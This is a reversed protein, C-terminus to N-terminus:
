DIGAPAPGTVPASPETQPPPRGLNAWIVLALLALILLLAVLGPLRSFLRLPAGRAIRYGAFWVLVALAAAAMQWGLFVTVRNLGRTFGFDTPATTAFAWFSWVFAAAWLVLLFLVLTTARM